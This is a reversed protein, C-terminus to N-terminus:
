RRQRKKGRPRTRLIFEGSKKKRSRTRVGLTHKGWPTKPGPFGIGCRGEGGGHPHDVPNMASGRVKPRRGLWRSRGAKGLVIGSDSINGVQGVTATQGSPVLRLEKSPFRLLAFGDRRGLLSCFSGAARSVQGGRGATLEVNHVQSGLPISGLPLSCGTKAPCKEGTYIRQGRVLSNPCLMFRAEGCKRLAKERSSLEEALSYRLPLRCSVADRKAADDLSFSERYPAHVGGQATFATRAPNERVVFALRANRNPDYEVSIVRETLVKGRSEVPSPWRLYPPLKSLARRWATPYLPTSHGAIVGFRSMRSVQICPRYSVVRVKRKHGGGRGRVTIV